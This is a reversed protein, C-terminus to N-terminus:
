SWSLRPLLHAHAHESTTEAAFIAVTSKPTNYRLAAKQTKTHTHTHAFSGSCLIIMFFHKRNVTLLTERTFRSVCPSYIRELVNSLWLYQGILHPIPHSLLHILKTSSIDLFLCKECTRLHCTKRKIDMKSRNVPVGRLQSSPFLEYQSRRFGTVQVFRRLSEWVSHEIRTAM